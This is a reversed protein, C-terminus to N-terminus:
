QEFVLLVGDGAAMDLTLGSSKVYETEAAQIVKVNCEKVFDLEIKQANKYSYNVVYLATKGQYNFCGIIADGSVDKLERWSKGEILADRTDHADALSKEGTALIGKSVSNMLVEDIVGIHKNIDQAYYYWRTKNGWTGILGNREFDYVGPESGYAFFYPQFLPFYVLGKAGFALNMNVLWDFQGEDPFYSDSEFYNRNDNWQSGAQIFSWWPINYKEGYERYLALNYLYVDETGKNVTDFQYRDFLLNKPNQTECYETLYKEYDEKRSEDNPHGLLNQYCWVDLEKGLVETIQVYNDMDRTGDSVATGSFDSTFPEDYLFLGAFAPHSLYGSMKSGAEEATLTKNQNGIVGVVNSDNVGMAINYKEALDLSKMVAAPNNAYDTIPYPILNVGSDAIMQFYEDTLYDPMSNGNISYVSMLPMYYGGLPMVDDGGIIDFSHSAVEEREMPEVAVERDSCGSLMMVAMVTALAGCFLRTFKNKM